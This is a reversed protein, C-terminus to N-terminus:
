FIDETGTQRKPWILVLGKKFDEYSTDLTIPVTVRAIPRVPSGGVFTFRPIDKTVVTSASVAAGQGIILNQGNSAAIVCNPGIWVDREIVIKGPGRFHCMIISRLGIQVGEGIEVREPYENELYVQDGIFVRGLIKVGRLRHLFPRVTMAGPAFQAALHLIRNTFRRLLSKNVQKM